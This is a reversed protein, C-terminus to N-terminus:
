INNLKKFESVQTIVEDLTIPYYKQVDLGVNLIVSTSRRNMKQTNLFTVLDQRDSPKDLKNYVISEIIDYHQRFTRIRWANHVHGVLNIDVNPDSHEPKHVMKISRNAFTVYVSDIITKLSNNNDHNGRIMVKRGNLQKLWDEAKMCNPGSKFCFDGVHYFIDDDKIRMNHNAIIRANADDPSKFPRNAYENIRGHGLHYDSSVYDRAM